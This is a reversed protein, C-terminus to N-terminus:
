LGQFPRLVRFWPVTPLSAASLGFHSLLFSGLIGLPHFTVVSKCLQLSMELRRGWSFWSPDCYKSVQISRDMNIQQRQLSLLLWPAQHIGM